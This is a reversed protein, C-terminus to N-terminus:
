VNDIYWIARLIIPPLHYVIQNM